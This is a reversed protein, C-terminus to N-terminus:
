RPRLRVATMDDREMPLPIEAPKNGKGMVRLLECGRAYRLDRLQATCAESVRLGLMGLLAVLAHAIDSHRRPLTGSPPSSWRICCRCM